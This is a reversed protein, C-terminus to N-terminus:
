NEIVEGGEAFEADVINTKEGNVSEIMGDVFYFGMEGTDSVMELWVQYGGDKAMERIVKKNEKDLLSADKVLIVKFKENLAMAISIAVKMNESSSLQKIPIDNFTTGTTTVKLEPLPFKAKQLDTDKSNRLETIKATQKEYVSLEYKFKQDAVKNRENARFIENSEEAGSLKERIPEIPVPDNEMLFKEDLRIKEQHRVIEKKISEIENKRNEIQELIDVINEKCGKMLTKASLIARKTLERNQNHELGKELEENLKSTNVLEKPVMEPNIVERQGSLLKVTQGQMRREEVLREIKADVETFDLEALEMLVETQEKEEMNFFKGIDFGLKGVFEDLMAQPSPYVLDEKSTVKLYKGKETWKCTVIFEGLDLRGDAHTQGKRIPQPIWKRDKCLMAIILDIASSKGMANKGTLLVLNDDPRITIAKIKKFNEGRLEIIKLNNKDKTEM